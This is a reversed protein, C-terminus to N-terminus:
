NILVQRAVGNKSDFEWKMKKEKEIREAEQDEKLVFYGPKENDIIFGKRKLGWIRANYQLIYLDKIIEWAYVGRSGRQRLLNLIRGEQTKNSVYTSSRM